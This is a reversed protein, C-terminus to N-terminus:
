IGQEQSKELREREAQSLRHYEPQLEHSSVSKQLLGEQAVGWALPFRLHAAAVECDPFHGSCLEAGDGVLIKRESILKLEEGLKEISMAGDETLRKLKGGEILFRSTYVQQRRADMVPVVVYGELHALQWAMSALTSCPVCPTESAWSLGKVTSVGIRLGTFSGPGIAVALLDLEQLTTESALLLDSIMPLLTKSHTLQSHLFNQGILREGECLAVSCATASSDVALIKM